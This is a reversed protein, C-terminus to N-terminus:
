NLLRKEIEKIMKQVEIDDELKKTVVNTAHIVSSHDRGGFKAGIEPYSCTTHKRCLYMAIHRPFSLNRTRRKSIIDSAKINFHNAVAGKIDDVTLNIKKPKYLYQFVNEVLEINIPVHQLSSVAHLRTLAGELERVNSFIHEAIWHAVNEDLYINENEAKRNLIAVRTEFDPVQIDTILGWSFRTLLREEIGPIDRPMKDSTMVIQHRANYLVNFTNFFEEQTSPKGFLFQIDDILLVNVNRIREKFDKMKGFSIGNVVYNVFQESTLYVVEYDPHNALVENGIAHLLHTKGLGSGGYIFLPNYVEGPKEAVCKAAGHCLASNNGVIFNSFTYNRNITNVGLKEHYYNTYQHNKNLNNTNLSQFNINNNGSITNNQSIFSQNNNQSFNNQLNQELDQRINSNQIDVSVPRKVITIPPQEKKINPNEVFRLNVDYGLIDNLNSTILYKFHQDVYKSIFKSQTYIVATKQNEDFDEIVLNEIYSKFVQPNLQKQLKILCQDWAEIFSSSITKITNDTM